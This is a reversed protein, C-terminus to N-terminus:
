FRFYKMEMMGVNWLEMEDDNLRMINLDSYLFTSM